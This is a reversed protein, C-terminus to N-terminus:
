VHIPHFAQYVISHLGVKMAQNLAKNLLGRQGFPSFSKEKRFSPSSSKGKQFAALRAEFPSPSKSPKEQEKQDGEVKKESIEKEKDKKEKELKEKELKEKEIKEKEIKEKEIKEKEIKEKEIKEKEIKENEKKEKEKMEADKNLELVIEKPKNDTTGNLQMTASSVQKKEDVSPPM